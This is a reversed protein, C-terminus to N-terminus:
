YYTANIMQVEVERNLIGLQKKVEKLGKESLMCGKNSGDFYATKFFENIRVVKDINVSASRDSETFHYGSNNLTNAWYKLPGNLIYEGNITYVIIRNVGSSHMMYWIDEVLINVLGSDGNIDKTVSLAHM